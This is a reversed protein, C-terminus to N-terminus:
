IEISKPYCMFYKKVPTSLSSINLQDSAEAIDRTTKDKYLISINDKKPNYANNEITENFVFYQVDNEPIEFEKLTKERYQEITSDPFQESSIKIKYLKRNIM